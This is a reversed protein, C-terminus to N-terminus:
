AAPSRLPPTTQPAGGRWHRARGAVMDHAAPVPSHHALAPGLRPAVGPRAARRAGGSGVVWWSLLLLLYQVTHAGILRFLHRPLRAQRLHRWLSAGPPLRLLWGGDIRVPSLRERLIAARARAQRRKPVNAEGLLQDVQGALPQELGQCLATCIVEPQLRHVTHDPGLISVARRRGGLLALFHPEDGDPLRLLAPGASRVLREVEAYPVEVPEAELGLGGATAEIWRGLAESSNWMLSGPPAPVEVSRPALGGTRALAELAEGLRSVPWALRDLAGM